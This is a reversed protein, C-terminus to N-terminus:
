VVPSFYIQKPSLIGVCHGGVKILDALRLLMLPDLAVPIDKTCDKGGLFFLGFFPRNFNLNHHQHSINDITYRMSTLSVTSFM